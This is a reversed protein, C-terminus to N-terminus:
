IVAEGFGVVVALNEDVMNQAEFIRRDRFHEGDEAAGIAARDAEFEHMHGIRRLFGPHLFADLSRVLLDGERRFALAGNQGLQDFCFAELFKAVKTIAAGLAETEIAAFGHNRGEFLNDLAASCQAQFLDDNTHGM